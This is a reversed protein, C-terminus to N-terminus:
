WARSQNSQDCDGSQPQRHSLVSKSPSAVMRPMIAAVNRRGQDLAEHLFNHDASPRELLRGGFRLPPSAAPSNDVSAASPM